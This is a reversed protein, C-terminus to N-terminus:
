GISSLLITTAQNPTSGKQWQEDLTQYNCEVLGQADGNPIELREKLRDMVLREWDLKSM